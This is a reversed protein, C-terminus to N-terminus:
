FVEGTELDVNGEGTEASAPAAEAKSLLKARLAAEIEAAVEPNEKLFKGANARGQGIKDGKYSYWAGSKEVLKHAVGLDVL